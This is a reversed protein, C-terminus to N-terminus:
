NTYTCRCKVVEDWKAYDKDSVWIVKMDGDVWFEDFWNVAEVLSIENWSIPKM